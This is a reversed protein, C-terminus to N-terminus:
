LASITMLLNDVNPRSFSLELVFCPLCQLFIRTAVLHKGLLVESSAPATRKGRWWKQLNCLWTSKPQLHSLSSFPVSCHQGSTSQYLTGLGGEQM